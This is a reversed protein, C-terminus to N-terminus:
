LRIKGVTGGGNMLCGELLLSESAEGAEMSDHSIASFEILPTHNGHNMWCLIPLMPCFHLLSPLVSPLISPLFSFCKGLSSDQPAAWGGEGELGSCEGKGRWFPCTDWPSLLRCDQSVGSSHALWLLQDQWFSMGGLLPARPHTSPPSSADPLSLLIIPLRFEWGQM